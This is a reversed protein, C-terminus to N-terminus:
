VRWGNDGSLRVIKELHVDLVRVLVEHTAKRAAPPKEWCELVDIQAAALMQLVEDVAEV